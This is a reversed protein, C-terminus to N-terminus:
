RSGIRFLYLSIEGGIAMLDNIEEKTFEYPVLKGIGLTGYLEGDLLLPVALSGEVKTEKASPRAVGSNDTQLNCMEVPELRQAAIGAMGKGVPVQSVKPLLFDPIGQQAKLELIQSERKLFHITGTTCDFHSIIEELIQQWNVDSFNQSASLASFQISPMINYKPKEKFRVQLLHEFSLNIKYNSSFLLKIPIVLGPDFKFTGNNSAAKNRDIKKPADM